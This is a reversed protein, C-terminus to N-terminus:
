CLLSQYETDSIRKMSINYLNKLTEASKKGDSGYSYLFRVYGFLVAVAESTYKLTNNINDLYRHKDYPMSVLVYSYTQNKWIKIPLCFLPISKNMYRKPVYAWADYSKFVIEKNVGDEFFAVIKNYGSSSNNNYIDICFYERGEPKLKSSFISARKPKFPSTKYFFFSSPIERTACTEGCSYFTERLNFFSM